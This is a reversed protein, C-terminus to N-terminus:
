DDLSNKGSYSCPEWLKGSLNNLTLGGCLRTNLANFSCFHNLKIVHKWGIPEQKILNMEQSVKILICFLGRQFPSVNRLVVIPGTWRQYSDGWMEWLAEEHGRQAMAERRGLIWHVSGYKRHMEPEWLPFSATERRPERSFLSGPVQNLDALSLM